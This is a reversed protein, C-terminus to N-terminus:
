FQGANDFEVFAYFLHVYWLAFSLSSASWVKSRSNDSAMYKVDAAPLNCVGGVTVQSRLDIYSREALLTAM